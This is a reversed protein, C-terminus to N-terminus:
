ESTGAPMACTRVGADVNVYTVIAETVQLNERPQAFREAWVDVQVTISSSGTRITRCCLSVVDGVYVPLKFEVKDMAVTLVRDCGVARAHIAGAQDIHSLIVGGFITDHVNTDRPMMLVKISPSADAISDDQATM